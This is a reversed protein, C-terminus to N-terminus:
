AGGTNNGGAMKIELAKLGLQRRRDAEIEEM